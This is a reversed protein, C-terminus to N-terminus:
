LKRDIKSLKNITQFLELRTAIRLTAKMRSLENMKFRMGFSENLYKGTTHKSNEFM